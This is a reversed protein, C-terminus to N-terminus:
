NNGTQRQSKEMVKGVVVLKGNVGERIIHGAIKFQKQKLARILSIEEVCEAFLVHTSM